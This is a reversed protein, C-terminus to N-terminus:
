REIIAVEMWRSFLHVDFTADLFPVSWGPVCSANEVFDPKSCESDLFEQFEEVLRDPPLTSEDYKLKRPWVKVRSLTLPRRFNEQAFVEEYYRRLDGNGKAVDYLYRLRQQGPM